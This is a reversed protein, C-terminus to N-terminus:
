TLWITFSATACSFCSGSTGAMQDGALDAMEPLQAGGGTLPPAVGGAPGIPQRVLKRKGDLPVGVVLLPQDGSRTPEHAIQAPQGAVM